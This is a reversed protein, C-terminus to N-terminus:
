FLSMQADSTIVEVLRTTVTVPVSEDSEDDDSDLEADDDSMEDESEDDPLDAEVAPTSSPIDLSLSMDLAPAGIQAEPGSAPLDFYTSAGWPLDRLEWDPLIFTGDLLDRLWQRQAVVHQFSSECAEATWVDRRLQQSPHGPHAEPTDIIATYVRFAARWLEARVQPTAFFGNSFAKDAAGTAVIFNAVGNPRGPQRIAKFAYKLTAQNERDQAVALEELWEASPLLADKGIGFGCLSRYGTSSCPFYGREVAHLEGGFQTRRYGIKRGRIEIITDINENSMIIVVANQRAAPDTRGRRPTGGIALGQPVGLWALPLASPHRWAGGRPPLPRDRLHLAAAPRLGAASTARSCYRPRRPVILRRTLPFNASFFPPAPGSARLAPTCCSGVVIATM